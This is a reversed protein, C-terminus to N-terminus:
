RNPGAGSASSGNTVSRADLQAALAYLALVAAVCAARHLRSM